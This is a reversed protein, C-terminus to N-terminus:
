FPCSVGTTTRAHPEPDPATPDEPLSVSKFAAPEEWRVGSVLGMGRSQQSPRPCPCALPPTGVRLGQEPEARCRGWGGPSAEAGGHLPNQAGSTCVPLFVSQGSGRETPNCCTDTSSHTRARSLHRGLAWRWAGGLALSTLLPKWGLTRARSLHRGFAGGRCSQPLATWARPRAM